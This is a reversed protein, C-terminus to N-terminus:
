FDGYNCQLCTLGLERWMKVVQDRDDVVFLVDYKDKIFTEYMESKVIDDKRCDGSRRFFIQDYPIRNYLLWSITQRECAFPRGTTIIICYGLYKMECLLKKIPENVIDMGVKDFSYPPRCNREALTGDLDFIVAKKMEEPFKLNYDDIKDDSISKGHGCQDLECM